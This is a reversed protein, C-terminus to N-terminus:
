LTLGILVICVIVVILDRVTQKYERHNYYSVAAHFITGFMVYSVLIRINEIFTRPDIINILGISIIGFLLWAIVYADVQREFNIHTM